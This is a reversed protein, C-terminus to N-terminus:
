PTKAETGVCRRRPYMDLCWKFQRRADGGKRFNSVECRCSMYLMFSMSLDFPVISSVILCLGICVSDFVCLTWYLCLGNCVFDLVFYITSMHCSTSCTM